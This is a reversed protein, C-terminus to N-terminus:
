PPPKTKSNVFSNARQKDRQSFRWDPIHLPALFHTVTMGKDDSQSDDAQDKDDFPLEALRPFRRTISYAGHSKWYSNQSCRHHLSHWLGSIIRNDADLSHSSSFHDLLRPM